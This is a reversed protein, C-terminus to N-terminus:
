FQLHPNVLPLCGPSAWAPGQDRVVILCAYVCRLSLVRPKGPCTDYTGSETLLIHKHECGNLIVCYKVINYQCNHM